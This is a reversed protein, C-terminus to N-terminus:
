ETRPSGRRPRPSGQRTEMIERGLQEVLARRLDVLAGQLGARPGLQNVLLGRLEANRGPQKSLPRRLGARPGVQSRGKIDTLRPGPVEEPRSAPMTITDTSPARLRLIAWAPYPAPSAMADRFKSNKRGADGVRASVAARASRYQ